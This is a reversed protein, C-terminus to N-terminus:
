RKKGAISAELKALLDEVDTPTVEDVEAPTPELGEAKAAILERLEEQYTDRYRDPNFENHMSEIVKHAMTLEAPKVKLKDMKDLVPFDPQRVEDPWLMVQLTLLNQKGVVRLAGLKTGGRLAFKVIAVRDTEALATSLLKYAKESKNPTVYYPKGFMLPDLDEVPVFELVDIVRNREEAISSLDDDTLVVLAGDHDYGKVIDAFEVMEGCDECVRKYRIRGHDKNHVQHSAASHDETAGFLKVPVNVLGFSISGSWISRM